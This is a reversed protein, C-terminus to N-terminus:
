IQFDNLYSEEKFEGYLMMFITYLADAYDSGHDSWSKVIGNRVYLDIEDSIDGKSM